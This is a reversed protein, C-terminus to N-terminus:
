AREEDHAQLFPLLEALVRRVLEPHAVPALDHALDPIIALRAGAIRRATDQGCVPPVWPDDAGHLVLTPCRIQGLLAAREADALIAALQRYTAANDPTHREATRQFMARLAEDSPPFRPSAIAKLFRVYYRVLAEQTRARGKSAAARLVAAKPKMLGRAGSSGSIPVLSLVREPVALAVRQAIMAGMSLGVVHARAIGLADLVGIADNAMDTLTYPVRPRRGLWAQTAIWPIRPTGHHHLHTSLGGDRNDMRLVRYGADALGQVLEPPWHILQGGLGMILLVAPGDGGTDAVALELGNAQIKM